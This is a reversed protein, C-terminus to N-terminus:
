PLATQPWGTRDLCCNQPAAIPAAGEACCLLHFIRSSALPYRCQSVLLARCGRTFPQLKESIVRTVVCLDLIDCTTRATISLGRRSFLEALDTDALTAPKGVKGGKCNGLLHLMSCPFPNIHLLARRTCHECM